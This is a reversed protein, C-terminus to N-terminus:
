SCTVWGFVGHCFCSWSRWSLSWAILLSISIWKLSGVNCSVSLPIANFLLLMNGGDEFSMAFGDGLVASWAEAFLFNDAMWLPFVQTTGFCRFIRFKQESWLLNNATHWALFIGPCELFTNEKYINSKVDPSNSFTMGSQSLSRLKVSIHIDFSSSEM